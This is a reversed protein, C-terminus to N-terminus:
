SPQLRHLRCEVGSRSMTQRVNNRVLTPQSRPLLNAGHGRVQFQWAMTILAAGSAVVVVSLCKGDNREMGEMLGDRTAQQIKGCGSSETRVACTAKNIQSHIFPVARM